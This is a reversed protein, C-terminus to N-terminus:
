NNEGHYLQFIASNAHFLLWESVCLHSSFLSIEFHFFYLENECYFIDNIENHLIMSYCIRHCWFWPIVSGIIDFDHFLMLIKMNPWPKYFNVIKLNIIAYFCWLFFTYKHQNTPKFLNIRLIWPINNISIVYIGLTPRTCLLGWWWRMSFKITRAMIYSFFKTKWLRLSQSIKTKWLRLNLSIKSQSSM